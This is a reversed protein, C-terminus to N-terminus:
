PLAPTHSHNRQAESRFWRALQRARQLPEPIRSSQTTALAVERATEPSTRWSAHVAIPQAGAVTRLRFGVLRNRLSLPSWGGRSPGPESSTALHPRETIGV